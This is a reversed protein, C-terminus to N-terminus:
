EIQHAIQTNGNTDKIALVVQPKHGSWDIKILGYDLGTFVEGVRHRNREGPFEDWSHSLGSSTIDPLPFKGLWDQLM